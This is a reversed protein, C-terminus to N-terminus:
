ADRDICGTYEPNNLREAPPAPLNVSNGYSGVPGAPYPGVPFVQNQSRGYQRVLRRMDGLRHGTLFLWAARERFLLDVRAADTGPDNLDPLAPTIATQRLENLKSLWAPSGAKLAAEAEILRAEIGDAITVPAGADPKAWRDPALINTNTWQWDIKGLDTVSSRPDGSSVYDLGNGGEKDVVTGYGTAQLGPSATFNAVGIAGPLQTSHYNQYQFSTPVGSVAQAAEDYRGLNLLARAKGVKAFNILRASDSTLALASDFQAIAHELVQTTTLAKGYVFGNKTLQALPIGSCYLEALMVEAMGQVAHLHGTLAPSAAPAYAAIAGIADQSRTRANALALWPSAVLEALAPELMENQLSRSDIISFSTFGGNEPTNYQGSGLEDSLLGSVVIFAPPHNIGSTASAFSAIAGKYRDIAGHPTNVADPDSVQSPLKTGVLDSLSCSTLVALAALPALVRRTIANM